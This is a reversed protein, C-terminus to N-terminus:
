RGPPRVQSGTSGPAIRRSQAERAGQEQSAVILPVVGRVGWPVLWIMTHGSALGRTAQAQYASVPRGVTNM